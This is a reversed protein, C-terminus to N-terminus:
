HSLKRRAMIEAVEAKIKAKASPTKVNKYRNKLLKLRKDDDTKFAPHIPNGSYDAEWYSVVRLVTRVTGVRAWRLAAKITGEARNCGRHLAARIHGTSHDHDLVLDEEDISTFCIPCIKGQKLWL